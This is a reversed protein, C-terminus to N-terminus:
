ICPSRSGEDFFPGCDEATREYGQMYALSVTLGAVALGGM